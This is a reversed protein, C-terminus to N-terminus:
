DIGFFGKGVVEIFTSLVDKRPLYWSLLKLFLLICTIFYVLQAAIAGYTLKTDNGPYKRNLVAYVLVGATLGMIVFMVLGPGPLFICVLTSLLVGGSLVSARVGAVEISELFTTKLKLITAMIFTVLSFLLSAALSLLLSLMFAKIFDLKGIHYLATKDRDVYMNYRLVFSFSFIATTLAQLIIVAIATITNSGCIFDAGGNIPSKILKICTVGAKETNEGDTEVTDAKAEEATATAEGAADISGAEHKSQECDCAEGENLEKGCFRCFPM